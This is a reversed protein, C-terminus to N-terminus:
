AGPEGPKRWLVPVAPRRRPRAAAAANLDAFCVTAGERALLLAAARGIGSAAGAVLAVKGAVRGSPTTM